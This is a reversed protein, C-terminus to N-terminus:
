FNVLYINLFFLQTALLSVWDILSWDNGILNCMKVKHGQGFAPELDHFILFALSFHSWINLM